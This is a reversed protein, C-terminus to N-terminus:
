IKKLVHTVVGFIEFNDKQTINRAEYKGNSAVLRLGNRDPSFIKVTYYNGICALITDGKNAELNRNVILWDGNNIKSEMSDGNAQIMFVDDDGNTFYRNLDVKEFLNAIEQPEGAPVSMTAMLCYNDTQPLLKYIKM